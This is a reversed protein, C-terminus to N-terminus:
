RASLLDNLMKYKENSEIVFSTLIITTLESSVNHEPEQRSYFVIYCLLILATLGFQVLTLLDISQGLIRM